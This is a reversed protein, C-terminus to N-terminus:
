PVSGLMADCADNNDFRFSLARRYADLLSSQNMGAYIGTLTASNVAENTANVTITAAPKGNLPPAATIYGYFTFAYLSGGLSTVNYTLKSPTNVSANFYDSLGTPEYNRSSFYANNYLTQSCANEQSYLNSFNLLLQFYTKNAAAYIRVNTQNVGPLVTTTSGATTTTSVTTGSSSITTTAAVTTTPASTQNGGAQGLLLSESVVSISASDPQTNAYQQIPFLTVQITKGSIRNLQVGINAYQTGVNVHTTNNLTLSVNYANESFVPM